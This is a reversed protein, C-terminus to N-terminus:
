GGGGEDDGRFRASEWALIAKKRATGGGYNGFAGTKRIVRHCPVLFAVPNRALATGVARVAGPAGIRAAVDQYSSVYGAPIRVIAEWVKLQFNTGKVIVNMPPASGRRSPHFIRDAVAKTGKPDEVMKARGWRRRLEEAADGARRGALFSLACIGKETTALLCDGFPSPHVGYRITLGAGEGKLEGPTVAYVNVILDHLRGPGSLGAGYAADLLNPSERLLGRAYEATLFQLFRKPSIGAWRTFLRHFHYESLGVKRAVESLTPQRRFNKEIYLIAKEIRAYDAPPM